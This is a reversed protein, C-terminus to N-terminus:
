PAAVASLEVITGNRHIEVVYSTNSSASSWRVVWSDSKESISPVANQNQMIYAHVAETGRLTHSAIIAEEPFAITCIGYTCVACNATIVEPPKPVFNQVPYNYFIHSREPCASAPNKTVKAKVELYRGGRDDQKPAMSVISIDATPYKTRLDELVFKSADAEEVNMGTVFEALKVLVAIVVLLIVILLIERRIAM